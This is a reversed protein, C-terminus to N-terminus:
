NSFLDALGFDEPFSQIERKPRRWTTRTLPTLSSIRVEERFRQSIPVGIIPEILKKLADRKAKDTLQKTKNNFIKNEFAEMKQNIKSNEMQSASNASERLMRAVIPRLRERAIQKDVASYVRIVATLCNSLITDANRGNVNLGCLLGFLATEALPTPLNLQVSADNSDGNVEAPAKTLADILPPIWQAAKLCTLSDPWALCKALCCLFLPDSCESINQSGASCNHRTISVLLTALVGVAGTESAAKTETASDVENMAMDEDFNNVEVENQVSKSNLPEHGSFTYILRLLDLSTRSLLRTLRENVMENAVAKEDEYNEESVASLQNWRSDIRQIVAEVIPPILPVLATSLHQKPCNQIFPRIVLRLLSNLKLDPLHEFGSCCGQHLVMALQDTALSYLHPACGEFLFGVITFLNEHCEYLCTRLRTLPSKGDEPSSRKEQNGIQLSLLCNRVHESLEFAPLMTQHVCALNEPLWLENFARLVTLVPALVPELLPSTIKEMQEENIPEVLRRSTALLTLVNQTLAIRVQVEPSQLSNVDSIPQGLGLIGVLGSGGTACAAVIKTMPSTSQEASATYWGANVHHVLQRILNLQVDIPQNLRFCLFVLAELLICKEVIGSNNNAWINTMEEAIAEFYPTIREPQSRSLRFFATAALMHMSTICKPVLVPTDTSGFASASSTTPNYRFCEFIQRLLPLLLDNDHQTGINQMLISTCTIYRGRLNPDSPPSSRHLFLNLKLVITQDFEDTENVANLRERIKPLIHTLLLELVEWDLLLVANSSLFEGRDNLDAPTIVTQLLQDIWSGLLRLLDLPWRSACAGLCKLLETRYRALFAMYEDAEFIRGAWESHLGSGLPSGDKRLTQRWSLFLTPVFEQLKSHLSSEPSRFAAMWFPLSHIAIMRVPYTTLGALLSFVHTISNPCQLGYENTCSCAATCPLQYSWSAVIRCGIRVLLESILILLTYHEESFIPEKRIVSFAVLLVKNLLIKNALLLDILKASYEESTGSPLQVKRKLLLTLLRLSDNRLSEIAVMEVMLRLFPLESPSSNAMSLDSSGWACLVDMRCSEFFGLLMCFAEHCLSLSESPELSKELLDVQQKMLNLAFSVLHVLIENLGLTIDRRRSHPVNQFQMVDEYLRLFTSMYLKAQPPGTKGLTTFEDMMSPWQQPWECKILHVFIQSLASLIARDEYASASNTQLNAALHFLGDKISVKTQLDLDAWSHKLRHSLCQLGFLVVTPHQTPSCLTPLDALQFSEVKFKELMTYYQLRETNGIDPDLIAKVAIVVAGVDM